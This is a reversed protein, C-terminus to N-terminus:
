AQQPFIFTNCIHPCKEPKLVPSGLSGLTQAARCYFATKGSYLGLKLAESHLRAPAPHSSPGGRPQWLLGTIGPAPWVLRGHVGCLRPDAGPIRSPLGIFIAPSTSEFCPLIFSLKMFQIKQIYIHYYSKLSLYARHFYLKLKAGVLQTLEFM